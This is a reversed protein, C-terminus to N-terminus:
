VANNLELVKNINAIHETYEGAQTAYQEMRQVQIQAEATKEISLYSKYLTAAEYYYAVARCEKVSQSYSKDMESDQLTIYLLQDYDERTTYFAYDDESIYSSTSSFDRIESIGTSILLILSLTLIVTFISIIIKGISIKRM